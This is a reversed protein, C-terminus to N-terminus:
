VFLVVLCRTIYLRTQYIILCLLSVILCCVISILSISTVFCIDIYLLYNYQYTVTIYKLTKSLKIEIESLWSEIYIILSLDTEYGNDSWMITIVDPLYLNAFPFVCAPSWGAIRPNRSQWYVFALSYFDVFVLYGCISILLYLFVLCSTLLGVPAFPLIQLQLYILITPM